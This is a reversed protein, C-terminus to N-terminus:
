GAMERGLFRGEDEFPMLMAHDGVALQGDVALWGQHLRSDWSGHRKLAGGSL